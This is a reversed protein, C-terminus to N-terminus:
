LILSMLTLPTLKASVWREQPRIIQSTVIVAGTDTRTGTVRFGQGGSSAFRDGDFRVIYEPLLSRFERRRAGTAVRWFAFDDGAAAPPPGPVVGAVVVLQLTSGRSGLLALM